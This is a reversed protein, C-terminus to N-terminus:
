QQEEVIGANVLGPFTLIPDQLGFVGAAASECDAASWAVPRTM